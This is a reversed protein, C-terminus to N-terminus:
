SPLAVPPPPVVPLARHRLHQQPTLMGREGPFTLPQQQFSGHNYNHYVDVNLGTLYKVMKSYDQALLM